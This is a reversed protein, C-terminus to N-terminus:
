LTEDAEKQLQVGYRFIMTLFLVILAIFIPTFNMSVHLGTDMGAPNLSFELDLNRALLSNVIAEAVGSVVAGGLLVWAFVTMRKVVEDCFPTDCRRFADSLRLLFVFVVLLVACYVLGALVASAMRGLNFAIRDTSGNFLLGADTKEATFNSFEEGNVRMSANIGDLDSEQLQDFFSGLLNKQVTIDMDTSVGVTVADQPLVALMIGSIVLVACSVAMLVILIISAIKGILGIRNVKTKINNM